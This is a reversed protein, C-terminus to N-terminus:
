RAERWWVHIGLSWLRVTFGNGFRAFRRWAVPPRYGRIIRVKMAQEGRLLPLRVGAAGSREHSVCESRARVAPLLAGYAIKCATCYWVSM